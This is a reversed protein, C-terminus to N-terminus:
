QPNEHSRTREERLREILRDIIERDAPLIALPLLHRYQEIRKDIETCSECMGRGM